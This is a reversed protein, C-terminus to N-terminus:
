LLVRVFAVSLSKNMATSFEYAITTVHLFTDNQQLFSARDLLIM